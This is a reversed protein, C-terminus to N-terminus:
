LNNTRKINLIDKANLHKSRKYWLFSDVGYEALADKLENMPVDINDFFIHSQALEACAVIFRWHGDPPVNCSRRVSYFHKRGDQSCRMRIAYGYHKSLNGAFSSCIPSLIIVM